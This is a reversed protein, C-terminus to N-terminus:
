WRQSVSHLDGGIHAQGDRALRGGEKGLHTKREEESKKKTFFTKKNFPPEGVNDAAKGRKRQGAEM